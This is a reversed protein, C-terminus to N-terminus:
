QDWYRARLMERSIQLGAQRYLNEGDQELLHGFKRVAMNDKGQNRIYYQDM